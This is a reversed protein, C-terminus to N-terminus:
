HNKIKEKQKDQVTQQPKRPGREVNAAFLFISSIMNFPFPTFTFCSSFIWSINFTTPFLLFSRRLGTIRKKEEREEVM